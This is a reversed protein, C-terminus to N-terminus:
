KHHNILVVKFSLNNFSFINFNKWEIVEYLCLNGDSLIKRSLECYTNFDRNTILLYCKINQYYINNDSLNENNKNLALNVQILAKNDVNKVSFTDNNINMEDFVINKLYTLTNDNNDNTNLNNINNSNKLDNIFNIFIGKDFYIKSFM